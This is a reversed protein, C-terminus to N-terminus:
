RNEKEMMGLMEEDSTERIESYKFYTMLPTLKAVFNPAHMPPIAVSVIFPYVLWHPLSLSYLCYLLYGLSGFIYIPAILYVLSFCAALLFGLFSGILSPPPTRDSHRTYPVPKSM